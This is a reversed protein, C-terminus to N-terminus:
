DPFCGLFRRVTTPTDPPGSWYTSELLTRYDASALLAKGQELHEPDFFGVVGFDDHVRVLDQKGSLTAPKGIPIELFVDSWGIKEMQEGVDSDLPAHKPPRASFDNASIKYGLAECLDPLKSAMVIERHSHHLLTKWKELGPAWFHQKGAVPQGEHKSWIKAPVGPPATINFADALKEIESIPDTMLSEYRVFTVEDKHHVLHETYSSVTTVFNEFWTLDELAVEPRRKGPLISAVKGANSVIVDLPHRLIYVIRYGQESYFDVTTKTIPEHTACWPDGWAYSRLPVGSLACYQKGTNILCQGFGMHSSSAKIEELTGDHMHQSFLRRLSILHNVSFSAMKRALENTALGDDRKNFELLDFLIYQFIMNGSGAFGTFLIRSPPFKYIDCLASLHIIPRDYALKTQAYSVAELFEDREASSYHSIVLLEVDPSEILKAFKARGYDEIFVPYSPESNNAYKAYEDVKKRTIRLAANGAIKPAEHNHYAVVNLGLGALIHLIEHAEHRGGLVAFKRDFRSSLLATEKKQLLNNLFQRLARM